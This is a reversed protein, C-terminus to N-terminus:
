LQLHSSMQKSERYTTDVQRIGQNSPGCSPSPTRSAAASAASSVAQTVTAAVTQTVITTSPCPTAFIGNVWRDVEGSAFQTYTFVKSTGRIIVLVGTTSQIPISVVYTKLDCPDIYTQTVVQGQSRHTLFVVFLMTLLIKIGKL